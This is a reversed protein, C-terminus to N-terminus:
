VIILAVTRKGCTAEPTYEEGFDETWSYRSEKLATGVQPDVERLSHDEGPVLIPVNDPVDQILKKLDGVTM